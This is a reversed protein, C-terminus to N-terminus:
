LPRHKQHDELNKGKGKNITLNTFPAPIRVGEAISWALFVIHKLLSDGYVCVCVGLFFVGVIEPDIALENTVPHVFTLSRAPATFKMRSNGLQREPAGMIPAETGSGHMGEQVLILSTYGVM